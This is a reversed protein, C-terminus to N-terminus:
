WKDTVGDATLQMMKVLAPVDKRNKAFPKAIVFLGSAPHAASMLHETSLDLAKGVPHRPDSADYCEPNFGDRALLVTDSLFNCSRNWQSTTRLLCALGTPSLSAQSSRRSAL